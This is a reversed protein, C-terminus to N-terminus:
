QRGDLFALIASPEKEGALGESSRETIGIGHTGADSAPPSAVARTFPHQTYSTISNALLGYEPIIMESTLM